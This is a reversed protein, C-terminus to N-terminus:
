KASCVARIALGYWRYEPYLSYDFIFHWAKSSDYSLSSSWYVGSNGDSGYYFDDLAWFGSYPLFLSNGNSATFILGRVDNQTTGTITTNEYLETWEALTPMRWDNGWNATAADDSAQLVTLSDVEGYHSDTNYKTLRPDFHDGFGYKYTSLDYVSKPQTEGWAFYDGLGEPNDAGVNCTAWLTGSPLGLDVYDHGNNTGSVNNSGGNNGGNNNGGNNPDDSKKCGAAFVVATMLIIAVVAKMVKKM